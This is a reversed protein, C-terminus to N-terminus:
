SLRKAPSAKRAGTTGTRAKGQCSSTRTPPTTPVLYPDRPHPLLNSVRLLRNQLPPTPESTAYVACLSPTTTSLELQAPQM